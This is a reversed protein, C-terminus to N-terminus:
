FNFARLALAQFLDVYPPKIKFEGINGDTFAFLTLLFMLYVLSMPRVNKALWSGYENDSKWRASIEKELENQLEVEKLKVEAQLKILENRLELREKDSTVLNDVAVGVKEVVEGVSSSFLETLFSM